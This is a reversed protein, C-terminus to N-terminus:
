WLNHFYFLGDGKHAIPKSLQYLTYDNHFKTKTKKQLKKKM